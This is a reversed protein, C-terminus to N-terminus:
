GERRVAVVEARRRKDAGPFVMASPGESLARVRPDFARVEFGARDLGACLSAQTLAPPRMRTAKWFRAATTSMLAATPAEYGARMAAQELTQRRAEIKGPDRIPAWQSEDDAIANSILLTGGPRIVRAWAEIVQQRFPEEFFPLFSHAVIADVPACDITRIDGQRIDFSLGLERSLLHNQLCTTECRDAFVIDPDVGAARCASVVVTTVGTDAGGSVLVRRRGARALAGLERHFFPVGAPMAGGLELLRVLSWSRHYDECGHDPQCLRPAWDWSFRALRDLPEIDSAPLPSPNM